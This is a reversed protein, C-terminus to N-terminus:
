HRVARRSISELVLYWWRWGWYGVVRTSLGVCDHLTYMGAFGAGVVVVDLETTGM